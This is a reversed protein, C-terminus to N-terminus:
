EQWWFQQVRVESEPIAVAAVHEPTPTMSQLFWSEVPVAEGRLELLRPRDTPGASVTIREPTLSLGVGLAKMVAEKRTWIEFFRRAREGAPQLALGQQEAPAFYRRTMGDIDSLERVREVDVGLECGSGIALVALGDTHSVNFQLGTAAALGQLAPKGYGSYCFSVAQPPIELYKGLIIRLVSRCAVYCRRTAASGYRSAREAEDPALCSALRALSNDPLPLTLWWLHLTDRTPPLVPTWNASADM